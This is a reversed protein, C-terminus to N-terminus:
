AYIRPLIAVCGGFAFGTPFHKLVAAAIFSAIGFFAEKVATITFSTGVQLAVGVVIDVATIMKAVTVAVHSAIIGGTSPVAQITLGDGFMVLDNRAAKVHDQGHGDRM